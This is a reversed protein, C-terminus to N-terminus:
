AANKSDVRLQLRLTIEGRQTRLEPLYLQPDIGTIRLRLLEDHPDRRCDGAVRIADFEAPSAANFLADKGAEVALSKIEITTFPSIFDLRLWSVDRDQPLRLTVSKWEDHGIRALVSNEESYPAGYFVQVITQKGIANQRVAGSLWDAAIQERIECARCAYYDVLPTPDGSLLTEVPVPLSRQTPKQWLGLGPGNAFTFSRGRQKLENWVKWVGFGGTPVLVDHMLLIGGPALKPLWSEVDHHADSETHRGDIHLLDISDPAFRALADDFRCRLLTSFAAYHQANHETVERFTTEDYEGVHEDGTWSDIGFCRTDSKNEAASQCFTFYSEGRDVGLEVLLRPRLSAVIDYAFPLNDTWAGVGYVRPHFNRSPLKSTM